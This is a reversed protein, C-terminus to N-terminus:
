LCILVKSGDIRSFHVDQKWRKPKGNIKTSLEKQELLRQIMDLTPISQSFVLMKEERELTKDILQMLM